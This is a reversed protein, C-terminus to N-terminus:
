SPENAKEMMAFLFTGAVAGIPVMLVNLFPISLLFVTMAGFGISVAWNKRLLRWKGKFAIHRREAAYGSFEYATWRIAWYMSLVAFLLSGIAPVLNLCFLLLFGLGYISLRVAECKVSYLGESVLARVAGRKDDVGIGCARETREALFDNFPAAVLLALPTFLFYVLVLAVLAMAAKAVGALISWLWGEREGIWGQLTESFEGFGWYLLGTFILVNLTLPILVVPWLLPRKLLFGAGRLPLRAGQVFATVAFRSPASISVSPPKHNATAMLNSKPSGSESILEKKGM